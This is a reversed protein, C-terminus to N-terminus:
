YTLSYLIFEISCIFISGDLTSIQVRLENIARITGQRPTDSEGDLYMVEEGIKYM